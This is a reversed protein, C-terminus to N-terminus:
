AAGGRKRKFIKASGRARWVGALAVGVALLEGSSPEPVPPASSGITVDLAWNGTDTNCNDVDYCTQFVGGTLDIFGDGLSGGTEFVAAPIYEADTLLVLYTGPALDSFTMNVDGCQGPISGLTVTGAPPCGPSYNTLIDSTGDIYPEDGGSVFLGVFPDFGGAPFTIGAFDTGGGFGYTQVTISGTSTLTVLSEDAEDPYGFSGYFSYTDAVACGWAAAVFLGLVLAKQWILGGM